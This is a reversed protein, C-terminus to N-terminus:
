FKLTSISSSLWSPPSMLGVAITPVRPIVSPSLEQILDPDM